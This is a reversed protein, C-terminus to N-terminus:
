HFFSFQGINFFVKEVMLSAGKPKNLTIWFLFMGIKLEIFLHLGLACERVGVFFSPM